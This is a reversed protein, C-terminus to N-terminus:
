AESQQGKFLRTKTTKSLIVNGPYFICCLQRGENNSENPQRTVTISKVFRWQKPGSVASKCINSNSFSSIVNKLILILSAGQGRQDYSDSLAADAETILPIIVEDDVSELNEYTQNTGRHWKM